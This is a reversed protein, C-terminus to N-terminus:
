AVMVVISNITNGSGWFPVEHGTAPEGAEMGAWAVALTGDIEAARGNVLCEMCIPFCLM